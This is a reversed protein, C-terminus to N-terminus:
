FRPVTFVEGGVVEYTTAPMTLEVAIYDVAAQLDFTGNWLVVVSGSKAIEFNSVIHAGEAEQANNDCILTFAGLEIDYLWLSFAESPDFI